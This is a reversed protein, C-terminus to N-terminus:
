SKSKPRQKKKGGTAVTRKQLTLEPYKQTRLANRNESSIPHDARSARQIPLISGVRSAIRGIFSPKNEQPTFRRYAVHAATRASTKGRKTANVRSYDEDGHYKSARRVDNYIAHISPLSRSQNREEAIPSLRPTVSKTKSKASM